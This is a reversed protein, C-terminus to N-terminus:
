TPIATPSSSRNAGRRNLILIAIIASSCQVPTAAEIKFDRPRDKGEDCRRLRRAFNEIDGQSVKSQCEATAALDSTQPPIYLNRCRRRTSALRSPKLCSARPEAAATEEEEDRDLAATRRRLGASGGRSRRKRLGWGAAAGGIWSLQRLGVPRSQFLLFPPFSFGDRRARESRKVESEIEIFPQYVGGGERVGVCCVGSVAAAAIWRAATARVLPLSAVARSNQAPLLSALSRRAPGYLEIAAPRRIRTIATSLTQVRLHTAPWQGASVLNGVLM